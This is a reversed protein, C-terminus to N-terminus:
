SALARAPFRPALRTASTRRPRRARRCSRESGHRRTSPPPGPLPSHGWRSPPSDSYCSATARHPVFRSTQIVGGGRAGWIATVVGRADGAGGVSQAQAGAGTLTRARGLHGSSSFRRARVSGDQAWLVTTIRLGDTALGPVSTERAPSSLTRLPGVAGGRRVQRALVRNAFNQEMGAIQRWAITATGAADVAVSPGFTISPIVPSLHRLPGLGGASLQRAAVTQENPPNPDVWAITARGAVDIAVAGGVGYPGPTSVERVPGLGGDRDLLLARVSYQSAANRTWTIAGRGSPALALQPAMDLGGDTPIGVEPGLSGDAALRRIQVSGSVFHAGHDEGFGAWGVRNWVLTANGVADLAVQADIGGDRPVNPEHAIERIPGLKGRAGIRRAFLTSTGQDLSNDSEWLSWVMLAAGSAAVAIRPSSAPSELPDPLVPSLVRTPGFAGRPGIRRGIMARPDQGMWAVFAGHEPSM